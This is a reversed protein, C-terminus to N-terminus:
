PTRCMWVAAAYFALVTVVVLRRIFAPSAIRERRRSPAGADQPAIAKAMLLLEMCGFSLEPNQQWQCIVKYAALRGEPTDLYTVMYREGGVALHAALIDAHM